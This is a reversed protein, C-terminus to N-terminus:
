FYRRPDPHPDARKRDHQRDSEQAPRRRIACSLGCVVVCARFIAQQDGSYSVNRM